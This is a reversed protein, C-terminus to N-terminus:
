YNLRSVIAFFLSALYVIFQYNLSTPLWSMNVPSINMEHIIFLCVFLGTPFDIQIPSIQLM